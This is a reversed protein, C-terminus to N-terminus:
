IVQEKVDAQSKAALQESKSLTEIELSLKKVRQEVDQRFFVSFM